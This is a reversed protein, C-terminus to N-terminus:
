GNMKAIKKAKSDFKAQARATRNARGALDSEVTLDIALDNMLGNLFRGTLHKAWMHGNECPMNVGINNLDIDSESVKQVILQFCKLPNTKMFKLKLENNNRIMVFIEWGRMCINFAADTPCRLGGRTIADLYARANILEEHEGDGEEDAVVVPVLMETHEDTTLLPTCSACKSLVIEKFVAAGAVYTITTIDDIGARVRPSSTIFNVIENAVATCNRDLIRPVNSPTRKIM